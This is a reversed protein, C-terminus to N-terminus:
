AHIQANALAMLKNIGQELEKETLRSFGLRLYRSQKIKINTFYSEDQILIGNKLAEKALLACDVNLKLWISLGSKALVYHIGLQPSQNKHQQLLGDTFLRKSQYRKTSRLIHRSFGGDNMWLALARQTMSESKHSMTQKLTLLQEFVVQPASIFGIRAGPYLIKSFTSLYIILQNPDNSAMPSTIQSDFHYEHDYDDEIIIVNHERALQYIKERQQISL